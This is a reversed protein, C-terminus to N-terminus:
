FPLDSEKKAAPTYGGNTGQEVRPEEFKFSFFSDGGNKGEQVWAAIRWEKGGINASGTYAPANDSTKNKNKFLAGANLNNNAM